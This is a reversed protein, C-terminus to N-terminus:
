HNLKLGFWTLIAFSVLAPGILVKENRLATYLPPMLIHKVGICVASIM